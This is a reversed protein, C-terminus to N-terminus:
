HPMTDKKHHHTDKQKPELSGEDSKSICISTTSDCKCSYLAIIDNTDNVSSSSTARKNNTSRAKRFEIDIMKDNSTREGSHKRSLPQSGDLQSAFTEDSLSDTSETFTPLVHGRHVSGDALQLLSNCYLMYNSASGGNPQQNRRHAYIEQDELLNLSFTSPKRRLPTVQGDQLNPVGSSLESETRLYDKLKEISQQTGGSHVIHHDPASKVFPLSDSRIPFKWISSVSPSVLSSTTRSHGKKSLGSVM